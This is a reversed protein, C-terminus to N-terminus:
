VENQATDSVQLSKAINDKKNDSVWCGHPNSANEVPLKDVSFTLFRLLIKYRGPSLYLRKKAFFTRFICFFRGHFPAKHIHLQLEQQTKPSPPTNNTKNTSTNQSTSPPSSSHASQIWTKSRQQPHLQTKNM